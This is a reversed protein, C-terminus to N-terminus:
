GSDDYKDINGYVYYKRPLAVKHCFNRFRCSEMLDLNDNKYELQTGKYYM